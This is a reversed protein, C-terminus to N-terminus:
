LKIALFTMYVTFVAVGDLLMLVNLTRFSFLSVLTCRVSLFDFVFIMGQVFQAWLV